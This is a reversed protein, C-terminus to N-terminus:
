QSLKRFLNTIDTLASGKEGLWDRLFVAQQFNVPMGVMYDEVTVQWLDPEGREIAKSDMRVLRVNSLVPGTKM